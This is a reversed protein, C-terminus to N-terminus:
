LGVLDTEKLAAASKEIASYFSNDGNGTANNISQLKEMAKLRDFFKIEVDGGKKRKIEAINFFDMSDITDPDINDSFILKIADSVCGFALRYFGSAINSWDSKHRKINSEIEKQVDERKM